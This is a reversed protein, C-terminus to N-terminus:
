PAVGKAEAIARQEYDPLRMLALVGEIGAETDSPGWVSVRTMEDFFSHLVRVRQPDLGRLLGAAWERQALAEAKERQYIFSYVLDKSVALKLRDYKKIVRSFSIAIPLTKAAAAARPDHTALYTKIAAIDSERFGRNILLPGALDYNMTPMMAVLTDTFSSWQPFANLDIEIGGDERKVLGIASLDDLPLRDDVARAFLWKLEFRQLFLGTNTVMETPSATALRALTASYSEAMAKIEPAGKVQPAKLKEDFDVAQAAGALNALLAMLAATVPGLRRRKPLGCQNSAVHM